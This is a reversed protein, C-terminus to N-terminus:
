RGDLRAEDGPDAGSPARRLPRQEPLLPEDGICHIKDKSMGIEGNAVAERIRDRYEQGAPLMLLDWRTAVSLEAYAKQGSIYEWVGLALEPVERRTAKATAKRVSM